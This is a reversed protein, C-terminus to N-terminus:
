VGHFLYDVPPIGYLAFDFDSFCPKHDKIKEKVQRKEDGYM